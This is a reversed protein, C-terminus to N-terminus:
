LIINKKQQKRVARVSLIIWVLGCGISVMDAILRLPTERFEIVIRHKGSPVSFQIVGMENNKQIEVPMDDILVGWGPYYVTNFRVLGHTELFINAEIRRTNTYTVDILGIGDRIILKQNTRETPVKTAWRPMYEDAVTTTAENTTYFGDEREIHTIAGMRPSITVIWLICAFVSFSIKYRLSITSVIEAVLFCGAVLTVALFRYPFQVFPGLHLGNWLVGSLPLTMFLSCVFFVMHLVNHAKKQKSLLLGVFSIIFVPGILMLTQFNLFYDSVESVTILDFRVYQKEIMVPMWFFTSLGIGLIIQWLTNLYKQSIAYLMIYPLFLLALSNHAIVLLGVAPALIWGKKSAIAYFAATVPLFAFIEGVSGRVYLDFVLYPALLFSLSGMLSAFSSFYVRLWFFTFISSGIISGALLIKVSDVFSFGLAHIVSGVYLFGPYLFNAVPYGYGHNLRGLFRAPIQGDRLSQFFASLRIVMWEGDDSLFFGTELLPRLLFFGAILLVILFVFPTRRTKKMLTM